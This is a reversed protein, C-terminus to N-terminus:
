AGRDSYRSTSSISELAKQSHRIFSLIVSLGINYVVCVGCKKSVYLSNWLNEANRVPRDGIFSVSYEQLYILVRRSSNPDNRITTPVQLCEFDLFWRWIRSSAHHPPRISLSQLPLPIRQIQATVATSRTTKRREHSTQHSASQAAHEHYKIRSLPLLFATDRGWSHCRSMTPFTMHRKLSLGTLLGCRLCM